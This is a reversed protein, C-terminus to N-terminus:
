REREGEDAGTGGEVWGEGDGSVAVQDRERAM